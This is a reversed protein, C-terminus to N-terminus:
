DIKLLEVDLPQNFLKYSSNTKKTEIDLFSIFKKKLFNM